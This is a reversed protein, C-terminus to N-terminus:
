SEQKEKAKMGKASQLMTQASKESFMEGKIDEVVYSADGVKIVSYFHFEPETIASEYLIAEPEDVVYRKFKNVDNGAVDSKALAMDGEGASVSIQFEKGVKIETAGWSQDIVELKGKSSDPVNIIVPLGHSSLDLPMMGPIKVAEEKAGGCGTLVVFATIILLFLNKM